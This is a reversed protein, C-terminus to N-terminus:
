KVKDSFLTCDEIEEKKRYMKPLGLKDYAEQDECIYVTDYLGSSLQKDIDEQPLLHLLARRAPPLELKHSYAFEQGAPPKRHMVFFVHDDAYLSGGPPNVKAVKQAIKEYDRWQYLDRREYLTKACGLVTIVLIVFLPWGPRAPGFVSSGIAYLGAVAPIVVFPAALLFYRSFTPHATAAEAGLALALCACLYYEAPPWHGRYKIFLLGCIALLILTLAQGSDIWTTLIEVDHSTTNEWYIKRYQTHYQVLNFWTQQPGLAALRFVPIWPVIAAAAFAFLKAIRSGARNCLVLWLFLVPAVPATLLSCAAAASAAFGTLAALSLGRHGVALVAARFAILSLFLCIGYAQALPGYAAVIGSLGTLLGAAIGASLRWEPIPMRRFAYDATLFVAGATFLAAAAHAVRWSEGFISFLAANLYANLLAQPFLFDLYPRMGSRILQAAILHFGEDGTFALTQSYVLLAATYAAIVACLTRYPRPSHEM